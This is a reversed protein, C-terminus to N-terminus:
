ARWRRSRRSRRWGYLLGFLTVLAPILVINLFKLRLGLADIEANFQHQVDRLQKNIALQRQLFQEIEARQEPTTTDGRGASKAPQLESLRSRTVALERQLEQKKALFKQDAASQLALVRTFPRQSSVRGHISLLASSGSLNDAINTILDGNNAIASLQQQGLLSQAYSVWLRDSLLDTDGVLIVEASGKAAALHGQGSSREPFASAFTGRVRAAIVYHINDPKYNDLLAAPNNLSERVRQSSVVEADTTSQMLPVLRSTTGPELDFYGVSSVNIRQLSATTVDDHNLEQQGLGLMAPHSMSSNDALEIRLARSRDLVVKQPDYQVGWATFLRSLNSNHDDTVGNSDVFPTSDMEAVPDVFVVLHGGNLVYQDIAYLADAPLHKPHIVLLAKIDSDVSKIKAPDLMKVDFQQALQRMVTWPEEGIVPNGQVPLSSILGVHPKSPQDLEYLLKAIDYELFTERSPDFLPIAQVKRPLRDEGEVDFDGDAGKSVTSGVLGFFVREGNTGGNIPSLGYGEASAEDDSYPVPDVIQLRIRGRSRAVMEQLMEAVRQEYSRLQPLDRTAHSSFYLRLRLPAHLGEVIHVTGPTLTYLKDSTLDVRGMRWRSSALVFVVFLIALLALAVLLAARRSFYLRRM